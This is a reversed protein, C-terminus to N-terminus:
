NKPAMPIPIGQREELNEIKFYKIKGKEKYSVVCEFPSLKFPISDKKAINEKPESKSSEDYLEVKFDQKHHTTFNGIFQNKNRSNRSLHTVRDRFYVSDLQIDVNKLSIFINIGAGGGKIGASWREFYAEAVESPAKKELQSGSTACQSFGAIICCFLM